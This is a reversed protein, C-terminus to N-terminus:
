RGKELFPFIRRKKELSFIEKICKKLIIIIYLIFM